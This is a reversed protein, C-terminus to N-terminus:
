AVWTSYSNSDEYLTLKTLCVSDPLVNMLETALYQCLTETCIIFPMHKVKCDLQTLAQSLQRWAARTLESGNDFEDEESILFANKPVIELLYRKFADFDLIIDNEESETTNSITAEVRYRKCNLESNMIYGCSFECRQTITVNSDM